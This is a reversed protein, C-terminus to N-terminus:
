RAYAIVWNDRFFVDIQYRAVSLQRWLPYRVTEIRRVQLFPHLQRFVEPRRATCQQHRLALYKGGILDCLDTAEFNMLLLLEDNQDFAVRCERGSCLHGSGHDAPLSWGVVGHRSSRLHGAAPVPLSSFQPYFREGGAGRRARVTAWM